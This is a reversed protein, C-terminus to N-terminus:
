RGGAPRGGPRPAQGLFVYLDPRTARYSRRRRPHWRASAQDWLGSPDRAMILYASPVVVLLNLVRIAAVNRHYRMWAILSPLGFLAIGIIHFASETM